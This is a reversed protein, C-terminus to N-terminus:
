ALTRSTYAAVIDNALLQVATGLARDPPPTLFHKFAQQGGKVGALFARKSVKHLIQGLDPPCSLERNTLAYICTPQTRRRQSEAQHAHWSVRREHILGFVTNRSSITCVATESSRGYFTVGVIQGESLHSSGREIRTSCRESEVVHSSKAMSPQAVM